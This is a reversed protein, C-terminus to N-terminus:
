LLCICGRARSPLPAQFLLHSQSLIPTCCRGPNWADCSHSVMCKHVYVPGPLAKTPGAASFGTPALSECRVGMPAQSWAAAPPSTPKMCQLLSWATACVAQPVCAGAWHACCSAAEPSPRSGPAQAVAPAAAAQCSRPVSGVASAGPMPSWPQPSLGWGCHSPRARDPYTQQMCSLTCHPPGVGCGAGQSM